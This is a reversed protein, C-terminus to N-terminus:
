DTHLRESRKEVAGYRGTRKKTQGIAPLALWVHPNVPSLCRFEPPIVLAVLQMACGLTVEKFRSTRSVAAGLYGKRAM